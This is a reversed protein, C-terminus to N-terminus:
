NKTTIACPSSFINCLRKGRIVEVLLLHMWADKGVQRQKRQKRRQKRQTHTPIETHIFALTKEQFLLTLIPFVSNRAKNM